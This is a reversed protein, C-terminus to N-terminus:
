PVSRQYASVVLSGYFYKQLIECILLPDAM